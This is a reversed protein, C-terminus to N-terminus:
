MLARGHAARRRQSALRRRMCSLLAWAGSSCKPRTVRLYEALDVNNIETPTRKRSAAGDAKAAAGTVAEEIEASTADLANEDGAQLRRRINRVADRAEDDETPSLGRKHRRRSLGNDEDEDMPLTTPQMTKPTAEDRATAGSSDCGHPHQDDEDASGTM